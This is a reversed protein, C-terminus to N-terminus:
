GELLGRVEEVGIGLVSAIGVLIEEDQTQQYLAVLSPLSFTQVSYGDNFEAWIQLAQLYYSKAQSLEGVGEAVRGLHHLTRAQGYRDGYEIKIELAQQYYSRAQEWERLQQAVIGLNNLTSAQSYRDGYEICIEIAQQYYSRAQEWERLEEAVRGLNHLTKAQEYRDGYEIFIELSQQYYSRAQEWERLEQAVIGLQHLTSAQYFRDGYEIKIEIAQQFYSRAQEWERLEQAVRGLEHLTSAQEYRDGYEIYIEIAQQYYSRAQEWERLEAALNGLTHYTNGLISAKQQEDVGQLNQTLEIVKPYTQKAQEYNKTEQYALALSALANIINGGIIGTKIQEPYTQCAQCVSECLKLRSNVDNTVRFYTNLCFFIDIDEQKELCIQLANFLNEYEWRCFLIGWQKEQPNKSNLLNSYNGALDRYHNKFGEWIAAQTEPALEKLKTKLFYPFIPQITLFSPMEESMPSLLGWHIAEEIAADFQDFQYGQLPELKQLEESYFPIFDRHIFGSFPALCLLLKQAEESLNSHSYEVCKIINNTKDKDGVDALEALQLGQWIEEPSQRKLNALVVEMALPYGALLKMLREFYDDKKIANKRSKAQRELIREALETRSEQDLGQLHYINEKFTRRQLWTEESRSGLIVKTKGGVLNKLFEAIAERENEPLTNQIALPQGTVSELNDLILIYAESRLKQELKKVRAKLNMAQFSAQEFRNYIGQGIEHVIQELTWAKKDYGFYFIHTAWNTKQWWERLYNLLTTKGTGGMGKLLLINHKLLAKEMKLIELDRGVFGYEPLPFVYQNGIHEWYKEEEEPTFPRLNLNIKGRCYIVPLLWDELDIRTNYYARRQKNNFLELRGKRMAETLDKGNLLQQYIPKMMLKAASVTVSYGMAVVAQMGATMLRSGLSTERYDESEQSIQKASQCANLICIPINKGTLLNALETAEVPTAQGKEEGELFLFAKVGEYRALDELGWGRQYRWSDGHVQRQYQEYEMLGGHVDFHIVHYYGEGKEDLHRTLSEYTGPRLIDIKVPIESSNVLEVLPRSITRYNVDSEENPRAIVVLLNITPYTAMQVPVVTAGRRQRSIICDISFPRPLDPDKLAEWHLAQFEPSQSEIIIQLQSLQKRLDRYEGYANLNSQFVQKFLNEGYNQVSNAAKQAKDTDLTPFVLWEEFYWELDKEEQNTFPDTVTIPYSNGSDFNLTATFGGDNIGEERITLVLM